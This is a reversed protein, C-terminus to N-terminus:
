TQSPVSLALLVDLLHFVLPPYLGLLLLRVLRAFYMFWDPWFRATAEFWVLPSETEAPVAVSGSVEVVGSKAVAPTALRVM